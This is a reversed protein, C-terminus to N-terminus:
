FVGRELGEGKSNFYNGDFSFVSFTDRRKLFRVGEVKTNGTAKGRVFQSSLIIQFKDGANARGINTQTKLLRKIVEADNASLGQKIAAKNFSSGSKIEGAIRVNSWQGKVITEKYEYGNGNRIFAVQHEIGLVQEMKQLVIGKGDFNDDNGSLWFRYTDGKNIVDLSLVNKDAELIKTM